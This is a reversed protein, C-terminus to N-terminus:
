GVSPPFLDHDLLLPQSCKATPVSTEQPSECQFCYVRLEVGIHAHGCRLSWNPDKGIVRAFTRLRSAVLQRGVVALPRHIVFTNGWRGTPELQVVVDVDRNGDVSSELFVSVPKSAVVGIPDGTSWDGDDLQELTLTGGVDIVFRQYANVIVSHIVNSAERSTHNLGSGLRVVHLTTNDAVGIVVLRRPQITTGDVAGDPVVYLQNSADSVPRARRVACLQGSTPLCGVVFYADLHGDATILVGAHFDLAQMRPKTKAHKM